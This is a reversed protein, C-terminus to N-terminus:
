PSAAVHARSTAARALTCARVCKRTRQAAIWEAASWPRPHPAGVDAIGASTAAPAFTFCTWMTDPSGIKTALSRKTVKKSEGSAVLRGM